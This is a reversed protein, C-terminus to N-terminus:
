PERRGEYVKCGNGTGLHRWRSERERERERERREREEREREREREREAIEREAREARQKFPHFSNHERARSGQVVERKGGLREGKQADPNSFSFSLLRRQGRTARDRDRGGIISELGFDTRFPSHVRFGSLPSDRREGAAPRTKGRQAM